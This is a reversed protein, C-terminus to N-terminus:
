GIGRTLSLDRVLSQVDAAAELAAGSEAAAERRLSRQKEFLRTPQRTVTRCRSRTLLLM